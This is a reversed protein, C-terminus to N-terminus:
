HVSVPELDHQRALVFAVERTEAVAIAGGDARHLAYCAVGDVVAPRVYALFPMGLAALAAPTIPATDLKQNETM